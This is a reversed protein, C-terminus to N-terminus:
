FSQILHSFRRCHRELSDFVLITPKTNISCTPLSLSYLWFSFPTSNWFSLIHDPVRALFLPSPQISIASDVWCRNVPRPYSASLISHDRFSHRSGFHGFILLTVHLFFVCSLFPFFLLLCHGRPHHHPLRLLSFPPCSASPLFLRAATPQPPPTGQRGPPVFPRQWHSVSSGTPPRPIAAANSTGTAETYLAEAAEAWSNWPRCVSWQVACPGRSTWACICSCTRIHISACTCACTCVTSTDSVHVDIMKHTALLPKANPLSQGRRVHSPRCTGCLYRM